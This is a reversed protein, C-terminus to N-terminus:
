GGRELVMGNRELIRELTASLKAVAREVEDDDREFPMYFAIVKLRYGPLESVAPTTRSLTM